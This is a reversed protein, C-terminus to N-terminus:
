VREEEQYVATFNGAFIYRDPLELVVKGKEDIYKCQYRSTRDNIKGTEKGVFCLGNKSFLAAYDYENELLDGNQDVFQYTEYDKTVRYPTFSYLRSPRYEGPAIVVDGKQNIVGFIVTDEKTDIVIETLGDEDFGYFECRLKGYERYKESSFVVKGSQDICEVEGTSQEVFAVGKEDFSSADEYQDPIVEIGKENIYGYKFTLEGDWEDNGILAIGSKSFNHATDYRFPIVRENEYNVYGYQKGSGIKKQVAILGNNGVDQERIDTYEIPLIEKGEQDIVGYKFTTEGYEDREETRQSVVALGNENDTLFPSSEYQYKFETIAKGDPSLFGWNLVPDGDEDMEGTQLAMAIFGGGVSCDDYQPSVIMEGKQNILGYKYQAHGNEDENVKEGIVATGDVWGNYALDYECPIVERGRENIYGWKGEENEVPALYENQGPFIYRYINVAGFTLVGIGLVSCVVKRVTHKKKQVNKKKHKPRETKGYLEVSERGKNEAATEESVPKETNVASSGRGEEEVVGKVANGCKPCFREKGTLEKGCKSCYM